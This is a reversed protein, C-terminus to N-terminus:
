TLRWCLGVAGRGQQNWRRWVMDVPRYHVAPVVPGMPSFIHSLFITKWNRWSDLTQNLLILPVDDMVFDYSLDRCFATAALMMGILVARDPTIRPQTTM